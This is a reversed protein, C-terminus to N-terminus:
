PAPVGQRPDPVVAVGPPAVIPIATVAYAAYVPTTTTGEIAAVIRGGTSHVMVGVTATAPVGSISLAVSKGPAIRVDQLAQPEQPGSETFLTASITAEAPDPNTVLLRMAAPTAPAGLVAVVDKAPQVGSSVAWESSGNAARVQWRAGIAVPSTSSVVHLAIAGPKDAGAQSVLPKDPPLGTVLPGFTTPGQVTLLRAATVADDEGIAVVAFIATGRATSAVAAVERTAPAAPIIDVTGAATLTGDVVVRGGQATIMAATSHADFAFDGERLVLRSRAPVVRGTLLQPRLPQGNVLLAVDVVADAATPNLIALQTEAKLTSGQPVVVTAPGPRNCPAAGAAGGFVATRSVTVAGGAYEVIAGAAAPLLSGPTGVTTARGAGLTIAREITKRGDPVYTIRVTSPGSGANVLHLYGGSGDLKVVPCAWVGGARMPRVPAPLPPKPPRLRDVVGVGALALVIPVAIWIRRM